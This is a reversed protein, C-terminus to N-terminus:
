HPLIKINCDAKGETGSCLNCKECTTKHGAEKSAPCVVSKDNSTGVLFTRFGMKNAVKKMVDGEVSAMFFKSSWSNRSYAWQHTYGTWGLAISAIKSVLSEGLLIPEGYSGFRVFRGNCNILIQEEVEFSYEKISDLKRHLSKVKSILGMMSQGKRVYCGNGGAFTCDFCISKDDGIKGDIIWELPIAFIQVMNATKSNKSKFQFNFVINDKVYSISDVKKTNKMKKNNLTLKLPAILRRRNVFNKNLV